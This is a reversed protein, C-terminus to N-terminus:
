RIPSLDESFWHIILSVLFIGGMFWTLSGAIHFVKGLDTVLGAVIHPPMNLYAHQTMGLSHLWAGLALIATALALFVATRIFSTWHLEGWGELNYSVTAGM